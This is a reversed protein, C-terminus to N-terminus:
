DARWNLQLDPIGKKDKRKCLTPFEEILKQVAAEKRKITDTTGGSTGLYKTCVGAGRYRCVSKYRLYYRISREYDETESLGQIYIDKHNRAVFFAGLIHSLHVTTSDKFRRADDNPLVGWLGTHGSEIRELANRIIESFPKLSKIGDVDDDMSIYIEGEDLFEQIFRRQPVLGPVGLIIHYGKAEANCAQAYRIQEFENAVFIYIKDSPYDISKLFKLSKLNIIDPRNYSPICVRPFNM